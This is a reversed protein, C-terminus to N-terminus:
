IAAKVDDIIEKINEKLHIELLINFKNNDKTKTYIIDHIFDSLIENQEKENMTSSGSLFKKINDLIFNIQNTETEEKNFDIELIENELIKIENLIQKAEQRKENIEDGEYFEDELNAIINKRRKKLHDIKLIKSKKLAEKKKTADQSTIKKKEILDIHKEIDKKIEKLSAFFLKEVIELKCGGNGCMKYKTFDDNYNRTKCSSIRWEKHQDQQREFTHHTGCNGCAILGSFKHKAPRLAAPRNRKKTILKQVEEWEKETVICDHTDKVLIHFEEDNLIKEKKGKIKKLKTKGYLTHGAYAINKLMRSITSKSFTIPVMEGKKKHYAFVNQTIFIHSIEITSYGEIYMDFMRKIIPADQNLKLKKTKPDYDYGLPTKKGQWHGKKASQITGRKLRIKTRSLENKGVAQLIDSKLEDDPNSFNFISNNDATVFLTETELLIQKFIPFTDDRCIRTQETVVVLDYEYNEIGKIMEQLKPRNWNESSASGEEAFIEYDVNNRECWEICANIQGELTAANERSKRPYIAATKRKVM